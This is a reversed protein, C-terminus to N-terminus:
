CYIINQVDGERFKECKEVRLEVDSQEEEIEVEMVTLARVCEEREVYQKVNNIHVVKQKGVKSLLKIRYNVSSLKKV